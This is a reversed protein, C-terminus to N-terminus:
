DTQNAAERLAAAVVEAAKGPASGARFTAAGKRYAPLNRAVTVLARAFAPPDAPPALQGNLGPRVMEPLGGVETAVVPLGEGVALALVSSQTARHYPAAVLSTAALYTRLDAPSYTKWRRWCRPAYGSEALRREVSAIESRAGGTSVLLLRWDELESDVFRLSDLLVDLGQEPRMSSLYAIVPAAGAWDALRRALKGRVAFRTTARRSHPRAFYGVREPPFRYLRRMLDGTFRSMTLVKAAAAYFPRYRRAVRGSRDRFARWYPKHVIVVSAIGFRQLRRIAWTDCPWLTLGTTLLLSKVGSARARRLARAWCLPYAAMLRLATPISGSKLSAPAPADRWFPTWRIESPLPHGDRAISCLEVEHGAEHLLIAMLNLFQPNTNLPDIWLIRM